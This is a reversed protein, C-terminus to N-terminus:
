RVDIKPSNDAFCLLGIDFNNKPDVHAYYKGAKPKTALKISFKGEANTRVTKVARDPGPVFRLVTVSRRPGCEDYVSGRAAGSFVKNKASYRLVAVTADHAPCGNEQLGPREICEDDLYGVNDEDSDYGRPTPDCANGQGETGDPINQLPEPPLSNDLAKDDDEQGPNPVVPCNDVSDALGDGDSDIAPPDSAATSWGPTTKAVGLIDSPPQGLLPPKADLAAGALTTGGLVMPGGLNIGAATLRARPVAFAVFAGGATGPYTTAAIATSPVTSVLTGPEKPGSNAPATYVGVTGAALDYRIAGEWGAPAGNSDFQVVYGGTAGAGPAAAVHFRFYAHELDASLYATSTGLTGGAPTLNLHAAPVFDNTPDTAPSGNKAIAIWSASDPGPLVPAAPHATPTAVMSLATAVLSAAAGM